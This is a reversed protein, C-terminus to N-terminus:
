EHHNNLTTVMGSMVGKCVIENNKNTVTIDCKLKNLRFFIKKSNVFISEGPQIVKKLKMESSTLYFKIEFPGAKVSPIKELEPPLLNDTIDSITDIKNGLLYMGFAVLGIQAASEQMISGPTIPANPFHGKYFSSDASFTCKGVIHDADVEIIEDIFRYPPQIPFYELIEKPTISGFINLATNKNEFNTHSLDKGKM